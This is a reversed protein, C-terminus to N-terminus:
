IIILIHLIHFLILAVMQNQALGPTHVILNIKFKPDKNHLKEILIGLVLQVFHGHIHHRSLETPLIVM